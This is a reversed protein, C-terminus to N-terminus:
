SENDWDFRYAWKSSWNESQRWSDRHPGIEASIHVEVAARDFARCALDLRRVDNKGEPLAVQVMRGGELYGRYALHTSGDAFTAIITECTVDNSPQFALREVDGDFENFPVSMTNTSTIYVSGLDDPVAFAQPAAGAIIVSAAFAIRSFNFM